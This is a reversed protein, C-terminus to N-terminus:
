LLSTCPTRCVAHWSVREHLGAPLRVCLHCRSLLGKSVRGASMLCRLSWTAAYGVKDPIDRLRQAWAYPNDSAEDDAFSSGFGGGLTQLPLAAPLAAEDGAVLDLSEAMSSFVSAAERASQSSMPASEQDAKDYRREEIMVERSETDRRRVQVANQFGLPCSPVGSLCRASVEFPKM